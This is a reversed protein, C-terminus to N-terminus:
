NKGVPVLRKLEEFWNLVLQLQRVEVSKYELPEQILFRKGDPSINYGTFPSSIVGPYDVLPQPRGIFLEPETHIDVKMLKSRDLNLYFLEKGDPSWLPECGGGNSVPINEKVDPFSCLYVEFRGSENSVYALWRGNPSFEPFLEDYKTDMSPTLQKDQMRLILIDISPPGLKVISLIQGDPTFSSPFLDTESEALKEMAQTDELPRWWIDLVGGQWSSIALGRGGPGWIGCMATRESRLRITTERFLDYIWLDQTDEFTGPYAIRRGDPALKPTDFARKGFVSVPEAKGSRDMWYLGRVPDPLVGGPAYALHGSGSYCLQAAASNLWGYTKDFSHLVGEIVPVPPSSIEMRNADFSAAM